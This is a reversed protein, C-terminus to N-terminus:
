AGGRTLAAIENEIRCASQRRAVRGSQGRCELAHMQEPEVLRALDRVQGRRVTDGTFADRGHAEAAKSGFRTYKLVQQAAVRDVHETRIDATVTDTLSAPNGRQRLSVVHGDSREVIASRNRRGGRQM